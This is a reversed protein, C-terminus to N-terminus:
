IISSAFGLFRLVTPWYEPSSENTHALREAINRLTQATTSVKNIPQDSVKKLAPLAKSFTAPDVQSLQNLVKSPSQAAQFDLLQGHITDLKDQIKELRNEYGDLRKEAAGLRDDTHVRFETIKNWELLAAILLAVAVTPSSWEKLWDKVRRTTVGPGTAAPQHK